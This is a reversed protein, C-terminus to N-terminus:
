TISSNWSLEVYEAWSRLKLNVLLHQHSFDSEECWKMPPLLHFHEKGTSWSNFLPYSDTVIMTWFVSIRTSQLYLPITSQLFWPTYGERPYWLTTWLDPWTESFYIVLMRNQASTSSLGLICIFRALDLIITLDRKKFAPPIQTIVTYEDKFFNM